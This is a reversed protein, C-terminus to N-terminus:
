PGSMFLYFISCLHPLQFGGSAVVVAVTAASSVNPSQLWGAVYKSASSKAPGLIEAGHTVSERKDITTRRIARKPASSTHAHGAFGHRSGLSLVGWRFPAHKPGWTCRHTLTPLIRRPRSTVPAKAHRVHFSRGTRSKESHHSPVSHSLDSMEQRGFSIEM